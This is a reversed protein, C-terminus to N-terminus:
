ITDWGGGCKGMNEKLGSRDRDRRLGGGREGWRWLAEKEKRKKEARWM